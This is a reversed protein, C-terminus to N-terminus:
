DWELAKRRWVYLLALVLIALFVVMALLGFASPGAHCVGGQLPARCSLERYMVAWPYFFAAEIDFVVFLIAIRYFGVSFRSRPKGIPEMGCEYAINKEASERRPGLAKAVVLLLLAFGVAIALFIVVPIYSELMQREV